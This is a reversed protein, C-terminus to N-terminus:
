ENPHEKKWKKLREVAGEFEEPVILSGINTFTKKSGNFYEVIISNIKGSNFSNDSWINEFEWLATEFSEVPGVGKKTAITKGIFTYVPDDVANFGSINFTIYKIRSKSNNLISIKFGYFGYDGPFSFDTIVLPNELVKFGDELIKNDEKAEEIQLNLETKRKENLVFERIKASYRSKQESNMTSFYLKVEDHTTPLNLELNTDPIIYSMEGNFIKYYFFPTREYNCLIYDEVIYLNEKSLRSKLPVKFDSSCKDNLMGFADIDVDVSGFYIKIKNNENTQSFIIGSIFIFIFLVKKM